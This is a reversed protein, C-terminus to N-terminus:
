AHSINLLSFFISRSNLIFFKLPHCSVPDIRMAGIVSNKPVLLEPFDLM